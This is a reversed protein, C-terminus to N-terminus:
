LEVGYDLCVAEVAENLDNILADLEQETLQDRVEIPLEAKWLM